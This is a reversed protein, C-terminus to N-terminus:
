ALACVADWAEDITIQEGVYPWRSVTPEEGDSRRIAPSGGLPRRPGSFAAELRRPTIPPNTCLGKSPPQFATPITNAPHNSPPQFPLNGTPLRNSPTDM